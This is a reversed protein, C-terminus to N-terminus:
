EYNPQYLDLQTGYPRKDVVGKARQYVISRQARSFPTEDRDGEILYQRIEPRILEFLFRLHAILPYNRRISHRAQTVDWVGVLALAGFIAAPWVWPPSYHSQLGSFVAALICSAWASYRATLISEIGGSMAM